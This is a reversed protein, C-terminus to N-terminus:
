AAPMPTSARAQRALLWSGWAFTAMDGVTTAVRLIVILMAGDAPALRGSFWVALIAERVGLGAPAGPALFGLIWSSAFAGTFFILGPASPADSLSRAVADLGAGVLVFNLAYVLYCGLLARARPHAMRAAGADAGSRLRAWLATLRPAAALGLLACGTVALLIPTRYPMWTWSAPIVAPPSYVLILASLHVCAVAVLLTEYLMSAITAGAHWGRARALAVRGLHQGVNGPLYKGFQSTALIPATAAFDAAQGLGRLLWTWALATAPVLLCYLMTLVVAGALVRLQLLRHLDQGALSRYAYAVFFGGAALAVALGLWRLPRRRM